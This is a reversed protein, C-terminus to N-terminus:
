LRGREWDMERCFNGNYDSFMVSVHGALLNTEEVSEIKQLALVM